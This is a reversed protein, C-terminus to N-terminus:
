MSFRTSLYFGRGRTTFGKIESYKTGFINEGRAAVSVHNGLQIRGSIDVLTYDAVPTTGLAGFPGLGSDYFVDNRSGVRRLDLRFALETMPKYTLSLNVTNPRRVLGITEVEKNLFAGNNFLQVHNGETKSAQVETPSFHLTGSVLSFNGALTFQDSLRSTIAFEIGETTQTGLNLYTDGRFDDRTWDNGLTDIAINKDWLYVYEIAHDVTSRFYNVSFAIGESIASKIGLEFSRSTEPDLRNNGRTIGSAYYSEPTFLQYLSPANFGSSFSAYALARDSIRVTPNIEYTAKTGFSSHHYIRGGLGLSFPTLTEGLLGGSFEIHAFLSKTLTRLGLTDLDSSSEFFGFAGSYFYTKISMTEHYLGGGFTAEIGNLRVDVQLENTSTSARWENNSYTHDNNGLPDIISSDDVAQRRMNSYGGLYRLRVDDDVKYSAGYTFLNRKFDITSNDDDTYAGKDIDAGQNVRKFSAFLDLRDNKFGLKGVEDTRHFGDKDRRKFASPNTASDVSADLGRSRFNGIEGSAYLGEPTTYNLYLRQAFESSGSGFTGTSLEGVGSLGPSGNKKTILNIVGGIASSGYLTSHAGRVIEVRELNTLSLETLDLANNPSSPDTIRVDDVMIATHNNNAGRMFLSQIMGPNQGTGVVYIGEQQSLLEALNYYVSSKLEENTILTVSRGVDKADKDSRTATVVIEKMPYVKTSDGTEGAVLLTDSCIVVVALFLSPIYKM